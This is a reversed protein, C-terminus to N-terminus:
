APESITPSLKERRRRPAPAPGRFVVVKCLPWAADEPWRTVMGKEGYLMEDLKKVSVSHEGKFFLPLFEANGYFDKSIGTLTRGTAKAYAKVIAKVNDRVVSAIM